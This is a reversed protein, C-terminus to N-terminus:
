TIIEDILGWELADNARLRKGTLVLYATRQRGIRRPLSVCGGAGPILGFKLEPLQVYTNATATINAAFAALEIGAGICAGHLHFRARHCCRILARAPLRVSRIAHATAPDDVSGFESLDGGISFCKGQGSVDVNVISRDDFALDFAEVLADRMETNIANRHGPRNLVVTLQGNQRDIQVPPTPREDPHPEKASMPGQEALWQFFEKGKQLTAYAMSEVTLADELSLLETARLTQVMTTAAIPTKSIADSVRNLDSMTDVFVDIDPFDSSHADINSTVGILPCPLRSLSPVLATWSSIDQATASRLDIAVHKHAGFPGFADPQLSQNLTQALDPITHLRQSPTVPQAEDLEM